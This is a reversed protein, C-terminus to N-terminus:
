PQRRDRCRSGRHVKPGAMKRTLYYKNTLMNISVHGAIAEHAANTYLETDGDFNAPPPVTTRVVADRM